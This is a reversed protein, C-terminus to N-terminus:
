NLWSQEFCPAMEDIVLTAVFFITNPTGYRLALKVKSGGTGLKM